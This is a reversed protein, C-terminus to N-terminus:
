HHNKSTRTVLKGKEPDGGFAAINETIWSLALRQDMLGLSSENLPL